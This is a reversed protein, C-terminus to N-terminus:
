NEMRVRSGAMYVKHVHDMQASHMHLLCTASQIRSLERIVDALLDATGHRFFAWWGGALIILLCAAVSASYRAIRIMLFRRKRAITPLSLISQVAQPHERQWALFDPQPRLDSVALLLDDLKKNREVDDM